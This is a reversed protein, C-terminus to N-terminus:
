FRHFLGLQFTFAQQDDLEKGRYFAATFPTDFDTFSAKTYLQTNGSLNYTYGIAYKTAKGQGPQQTAGDIRLNKLRVHNFLLDIVGPRTTWKIGAIWSEQRSRIGGRGGYAKALSANSYEGNQWGNDQTREYGLSFRLPGYTYAGGLNWLSANGSDAKKSWSGLLFLPGRDYRLSAAYGDHEKGAFAASGPEARHSDQGLSCSARLYLGRWVPSDYRMTNSIRVLRQSSRLMSAPGDQNFPDLVRFTETAIENLRGFRLSGWNGALGMNAAGEWEADESSELKGNQLIFRTQLDFTAKLGQGLNETGKIGLANSDNEDMRWDKGTEKVYGIDTWGYLTLANQALASFAPLLMGALTLALRSPYTQM